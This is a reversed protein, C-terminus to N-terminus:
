KEIIQQPYLGSITGATADGHGAIKLEENTGLGSSMWEPVERFLPQGEAGKDLQREKPGTVKNATALRVDDQGVRYTMRQLAPATLRGAVAPAARAPAPRDALLHQARRNGRAHQAALLDTPNLTARQVLGKPLATTRAAAPAAPRTSARRAA